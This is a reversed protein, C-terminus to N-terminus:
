GHMSHTLRKTFNVQEALPHGQLNSETSEEQRGNSNSELLPSAAPIRNARRGGETIPPLGRSTARETVTGKVALLLKNVESKSTCELLVPRLKQRVVVSEKMLLRDVYATRKAEDFKSLFAGLLREAAVRLKAENQLSVVAERLRTIVSKADQYLSAERMLQRNKTVLSENQMKLQRGTILLEQCLRQGASAKGEAAELRTKLDNNENTLTQLQQETIGSATSSTNEQPGATQTKMVKTVELHETLEKLAETAMLYAESDDAQVNELVTRYYTAEEHNFNGSEVIGYIARILNEQAKAGLAKKLTCVTENKAAAMSELVGVQVNVSPDMVADFTDLDYSEPIVYSDGGREELDGDGRSSVAVGIKNRLLTELIKGHPTPICEYVGYVAQIGPFRKSERLELNTMVHSIREVSTKGSAPHDLEGVMRRRQLREQTKEKGLARRWLAESYIRGNANKKDALQMEGGVRLPKGHTDELIEFNTDIYTEVLRGM